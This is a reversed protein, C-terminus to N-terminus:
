DRRQIVGRCGPTSCCCEIAWGNHIAVSYDYTIEEGPFIDRLARLELTNVDLICNPDCSHNIADDEHGSPGLWVGPRIECLNDVEPYLPVDTELQGSFTCILEGVALPEAAFVGQGHIPSSALCLKPNVISIM